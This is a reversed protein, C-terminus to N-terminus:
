AAKRMPVQSFTDAAGHQPAVVEGKLALRESNTLAIERSKVIWYTAFTFVGASEVFFVTPKAARGWQFFETLVVAAIPSAIMAWGLLKYTRRYRSVKTADSILSLTDSARFICVYAISLFFLVALTGHLTIPGFSIGDKPFLAVGVLFIGALNLAYNELTTFGKYLYLFAGVAFLVGVFVDRMGSFYYASLSQKLALDLLIKGGIWLVLPLASALVIIGIRLTTYTAAIHESLDQDKL